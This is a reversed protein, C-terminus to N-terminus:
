RGKPIFLIVEKTEETVRCHESLRLGIVWLIGNDDAVVPWDKRLEAPIKRDTFFRNLPKSSGDKKIVIRDGPLPKRLYPTGRVAEAAVMKRDEGKPIEDGPHYPIRGVMLGEVKPCEPETEPRINEEQLHLLIGTRTREAILQYPLEARKGPENEALARIAEVHRRTIDKRRGALRELQRFILEPHVREPKETDDATDGSTGASLIEVASLAEGSEKWEELTMWKGGSIYYRCNKEQREAETEQIDYLEEAEQALMVLHEKARGNIKQLEPLIRNRIRNRDYESTLNTSDTCYSIGEKKLWDEIEERSVALLPRIRDGLVPQIGRLGRIGTGRLIHFLITEAQDDKQHALAIWDAGTEEKLEGFCAYRVQRGAEETSIGQERATDPINRHFIRCPLGLKEAESRVYAEDRDAESGRIGHNVHCVTLRIDLEAQLRYLVHMLCISDAGGSVAVIGRSGAPIMNMERVYSLVREIM